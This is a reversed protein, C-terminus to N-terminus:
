QNLHLISINNGNLNIKEMLFIIKNLLEEIYINLVVDSTTNTKKNLWWIYNLFNM